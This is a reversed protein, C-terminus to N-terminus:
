ESFLLFLLSQRNFIGNLVTAVGALVFFVTTLIVAFLTCAIEPSDQIYAHMCDDTYICDDRSLTSFFGRYFINMHQEDNTERKEVRVM